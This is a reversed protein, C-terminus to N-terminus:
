LKIQNTLIKMSIKINLNNIVIWDAVCKRKCWRWWFCASNAVFFTRAQHITSSNRRTYLSSSLSFSQFIRSSIWRQRASRQAKKSESTELLNFFATLSNFLLNMFHFSFMRNTKKSRRRENEISKKRGERKKKENSSNIKSLKCTSRILM